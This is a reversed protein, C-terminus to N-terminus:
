SNIHCGSYLGKAELNVKLDKKIWHQAGFNCEKIEDGVIFWSWDHEKFIIYSDNLFNM